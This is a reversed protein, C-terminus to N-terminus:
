DNRWEMVCIAGALLAFGAAIVLYALERHTILAMILADVYAFSRWTSM